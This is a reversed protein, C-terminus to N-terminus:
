VVPKGQCVEIHEVIRENWVEMRENIHENWEHEFQADDFRGCDIQKNNWVLGKQIYNRLINGFKATDAYGKNFRCLNNQLNGSIIFESLGFNSKPAVDSQILKSSLVGIKIVKDENMKSKYMPPISYNSTLAGDCCFYGDYFGFSRFFPLIRMSCLAAYVCQKLSAFDSLLRHFIRFSSFKFATVGFHICEAGGYKAYKEKLITDTIGFKTFKNVIMNLTQSTSLLFFKLFRSNFLIDWELGFDFGQEITLDLFIVLVSSCGASIGSLCVNSAHLDFHDRLFAVAGLYYSWLMGAYSFALLPGKALRQEPEDFIATKAFHSQSRQQCFLQFVTLFFIPIDRIPTIFDDSTVSWFAGMILNNTLLSKQQNKHLKKM